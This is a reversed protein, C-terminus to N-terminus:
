AVAKNHGSLTHTLWGHGNAQARAPHSGSQTHHAEDQWLGHAEHVHVDDLSGQQPSAPTDVHAGHHELASHISIGKTWACQLGPNHTPCHELM